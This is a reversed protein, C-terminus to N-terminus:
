EDGGCSHTYQFDGRFIEYGGTHYKYDEPDSLDFVKEGEVWTQEVNTYISFPDGSLIIFDADKGTELSGIRQELGLM